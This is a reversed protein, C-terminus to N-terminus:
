RFSSTYNWSFILPAESFNFFWGRGKNLGVDTLKRWCQRFRDWAVTGKLNGKSVIVLSKEMKGSGSWSIGGRAGADMTCCTTATIGFGYSPLAPCIWSWRYWVSGSALIGIGSQPLKSGTFHQNRILKKRCEPMENNIIKLMMYYIHITFYQKVGAAATYPRGSHIGKWRIRTRNKVFYFLVFWLGNAM